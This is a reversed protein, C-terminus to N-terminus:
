SNQSQKATSNAEKILSQIHPHTPELRSLSQLIDSSNAALCSDLQTPRSNIARSLFDGARLPADSAPILASTRIGSSKRQVCQDSWRRIRRCCMVDGYKACVIIQIWIHLSECKTAFSWLDFIIFSCVMSFTWLSSWLDFHGWLLFSNVDSHCWWTEMHNSRNRYSWINLLM